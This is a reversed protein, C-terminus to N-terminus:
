EACAVWVTLRTNSFTAGIRRLHRQIAQCHKVSDCSVSVSIGYAAIRVMPLDGQGQRYRFLLVGLVEHLPPNSRARDGANEHKDYAM